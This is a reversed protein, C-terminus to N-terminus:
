GGFLVHLPKIKFLRDKAWDAARVGLYTGTVRGVVSGIAAGVIAGAPPAFPAGIVGGIAGGVVAGAAGGALGGALELGGATAGRAVRQVPTLHLGRDDFGQQLGGFVFMGWSLTKSLTKLQKASGLKNFIPAWGRAYRSITRLEGDITRDYTKVFQKTIASVTKESFEM